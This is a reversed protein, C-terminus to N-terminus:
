NHHILEKTTPHFVIRRTCIGDAFSEAYIRLEELTTNGNSIDELDEKSCIARFQASTIELGRCAAEILEQQSLTELLEIKHTKASMLFEDTMVEKQANLILQGERTSIQIAHQEAYSIIDNATNM